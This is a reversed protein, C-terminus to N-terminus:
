KAAKAAAFLRFGMSMPEMAKLLDAFDCLMFIEGLPSQMHVVCEGGAGPKADLIAIRPSSAPDCIERPDIKLEEFESNAYRTVTTEQSVETPAIM